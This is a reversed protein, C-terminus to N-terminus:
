KEEVEEYRSQFFQDLTKLGKAMGSTDAEKEEVEEYRSQFFQDLTKLGKAECVDILDECKM